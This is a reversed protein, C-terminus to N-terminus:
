LSRTDYVRPESMRAVVQGLALSRYEERETLVVAIPAGARLSRDLWGRHAAIEHGTVLVPRRGQDQDAGGITQREVLDGVVDGVGRDRAPLAARAEPTMPMPPYKM